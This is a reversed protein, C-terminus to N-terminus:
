DNTLKALCAIVASKAAHLKSARGSLRFWLRHQSALPHEQGVTLHVGSFHLDFDDCSQAMQGDVRRLADLVMIRSLSTPLTLFFEERPSNRRNTTGRQQTTESNPVAALNRLESRAQWNRTVSRFIRGCRNVCHLCLRLAPHDFQHSIPRQQLMGTLGMQYPATGWPGHYIVAQGTSRVPGGQYIRGHWSAGKYRHFRRPHARILQAEASGYNRQQRWYARISARRRHWVFACPAFGLRFGQDLLRWCFDVDDGATHYQPQFGSIAEFAARKVALNCGPLHEALQDDLMVHSASGTTAAIIASLCDTPSPPLNPGGVADVNLRSFGQALQEIWDRDPLCDDDTYAFIDGRALRAGQNRAASLGSAPQAHLRVWPYHNAVFLDTGDDSGDDIVLAEWNGSLQAIADLCDGIRHRGNRTCVIISILPQHRSALERELSFRQLASQMSRASARAEGNANHLGFHWDTVLQEQNWWLDSWTFLTTGAVAHQLTTLCAQELIQAQKAEGHRLSDLGFESIVLPRDGAIHHLRQLYSSLDPIHELYVNMATFDAHAPELFESSPYNAYAFLLHPAVHKGELILLDLAEQVRDVGMWRVLDSPIENAVYVGRLAPHQGYRRLWQNLQVRANSLHQPEDVFNHGYGWSLGAFVSINAQAAADLLERDPLNYCRLSNFGLLRMQRFAHQHDITQRPPYPGYCVALMTIRKNHCMLWKGSVRWAHPHDSLTDPAM